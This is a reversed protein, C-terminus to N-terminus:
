VKCLLRFLFVKRWWPLENYWEVIAKYDTLKIKTEYLESKYNAISENATSLADRLQEQEDSANQFSARVNELEGVLEGIRNGAGDIQEHLAKIEELDRKHTATLATNRGKLGVVQKKLYKLEEELSKENNIEKKAM